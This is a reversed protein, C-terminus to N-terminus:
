PWRMEMLSGKYPGDKVTADQASHWFGIFVLLLHICCNINPYKAWHQQPLETKVPLWMYLPHLSADSFWWQRWVDPIFSSSHHTKGLPEKMIGFVIDNTNVSWNHSENTSTWYTWNPFNVKVRMRSFYDNTKQSRSFGFFEQPNGELDLHQM